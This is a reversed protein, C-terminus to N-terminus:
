GARAMAAAAQRASSWRGLASGYREAVTAVVDADDAEGAFWAKAADLYITRGIAFGRCLPEDTTAQFAEELRDLGMSQGLILMGRCTDDHRRITDGLAAWVEPDLEPPLKWWEPGVGEDYLRSVIDPLEKGSLSRGASAQLEVLYRREALSCAAALGQLTEIQDRWIVPADDPHVYAVVKVVQEEPWRSLEFAVEDVLLKLPHSRPVDLARGVWLGRGTAAELVKRGYVDDVLVGCDDRGTAVELFGQFVLEKLAPIRAEQELCPLLERLQWRHDFALVLADRPATPPETAKSHLRRIHAADPGTALAGGRSVLFEVEAANPMAETCSHRSTVLAGGANGFTACTELDDGSLWRALFSAMFADGAGVSNVLEVQMPRGSVADPLIGGSCDYVDCGQAGRKHVIVLDSGAALVALADYPEAAGTAATLEASTGVVLDCLPLVDRFADEVETAAGVMQNGQNPSALNWLVPRFDVDLVVRMGQARAFQLLSVTLERLHPRALYSGTLLVADYQRVCDWDLGDSSLAMDASDAYYFIRPFDDVERIALAVLATLRRPDRRVLGTDVGERRLTEVVFRGFAEEGVGSLLGTRLGLRAAGISINAASGGVYKRFTSAGELTAGAQESYLDVCARGACLLDRRSV